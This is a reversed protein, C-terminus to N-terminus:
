PQIVHITSLLGNSPVIYGHPIDQLWLVHPNTAHRTLSDRWTQEWYASPAAALVACSEKTDSPVVHIRYEKPLVFRILARDDLFGVRQQVVAAYVAAPVPAFLFYIAKSGQETEEDRWDLYGLIDDMLTTSPHAARWTQFDERELAHTYQDTYKAILENHNEDGLLTVQARASLYGRSVISALQSQPVYAYGYRPKSVPRVSKTNQLSRENVVSVAIM